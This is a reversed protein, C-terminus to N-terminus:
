RPLKVFHYSKASGTGHHKDLGEVVRIIGIRRNGYIANLASMLDICKEASGFPQGKVKVSVSVIGHGLDAIHSVVPEFSM